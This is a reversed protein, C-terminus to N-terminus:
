CNEVALKDPSVRTGSRLLPVGVRAPIKRCGLWGVDDMKPALGFVASGGLASGSEKGPGDDPGGSGLPVIRTMNARGAATTGSALGGDRAASARAVGNDLAACEQVGEPWCTTSWSEDWTHQLGGVSLSPLLRRPPVAQGSAVGLLALRGVIAM